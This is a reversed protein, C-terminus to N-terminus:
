YPLLPLNLNKDAQEEGLIVNVLNGADFIDEPEIFGSQVLLLALIRQYLTTSLSGPGDLPM